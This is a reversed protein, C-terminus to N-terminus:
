PATGARAGQWQAALVVVDDIRREDLSMDDVILASVLDPGPPAAVLPTALRSTFWVTKGAHGHGMEIGWADALSEVIGLGRGRGEDVAAEPPVRFGSAEDTVRVHVSRGGDADPTATIQVEFATDAHEVANTALESLMLALPYLDEDGNGRLHELLFWRAERVSVSAPPFRRAVASAADGASARQSRVPADNV